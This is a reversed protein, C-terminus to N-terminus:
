GRKQPPPIQMYAKTIDPKKLNKIVSQVVPEKSNKLWNEFGGFKRVQEPRTAWYILTELDKKGVCKEAKSFSLACSIFKKNVYIRIDDLENKDYLFDFSETQAPKTDTTQVIDLSWIVRKVEPKQAYIYRLIVARQNFSGGALSVNVWKGGLKEGAERASTSMVMSTGLIFSDFDYHKIIGKDQVRMDDSFSIERFYPKHYIQLPDYIYLLAFLCAMAFFCLCLSNIVFHKFKAKM